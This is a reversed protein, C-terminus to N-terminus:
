KTIILQKTQTGASSSSVVQYVGTPYSSVDLKYARGSEISIAEQLVLAGSANYVRITTEESPDSWEIFVQDKAPNPYIKWSSPEKVESEETATIMAEADASRNAGPESRYMSVLYKTNPACTGRRFCLLYHPQWKEAQIMVYSTPSTGANIPWDNIYPHVGANANNATWNWNWSHAGTVPHIQLDLTAAWYAAAGRQIFMVEERTDSDLQGFLMVDGSVLPYNWGGFSNSGNTSWAWSFNGNDYNFLTGWNGLAIMEDKGDDDVDAMRISGTPYPKVSSTGQDSDFWVFNGNLYKFITTWGNEIHGLLEDESGGDLNGAALGERYPYVAHGSPITHHLVFDGNDYKYMKILGSQPVALIDDGGDGDFDGVILRTGSYVADFSSNVVHSGGLNSWVPSWNGSIYEFTAHTNMGANQDTRIWLLEERGNRNFDGTM